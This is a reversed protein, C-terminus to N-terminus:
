AALGNTPADAAKMEMKKIFVDFFLELIERPIGLDVAEHGIAEGLASSYGRGQEATMTALPEEMKRSLMNMLRIEPTWTAGKGFVTNSLSWAYSPFCTCVQIMSKLGLSVENAIQNIHETEAQSPTFPAPTQINQINNKINTFSRSYLVARSVEKAIKMKLGESGSNNSAMISIHRPKIEKFCRFKDIAFSAGIGM